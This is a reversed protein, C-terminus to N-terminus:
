GVVFEIDAKGCGQAVGRQMRRREARFRFFNLRAELFGLFSEFAILGLDRLEGGRVGLGGAVFFVREVVLEINGVRLLFEILVFNVVGLLVQDAGSTVRLIANLGDYFVVLAGGFRRFGRQGGSCSGRLLASQDM